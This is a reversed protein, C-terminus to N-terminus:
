VEIESLGQEVRGADVGFEAVRVGMARLLSMMVLSTNEQTQSRYHFGTRLAGCATGALLLPYEDIQHTRGYSVDTTGLLVSNDLLTGDGEPIARLAGVLYAFDRVIGVVIEHVQPQDGPEDHTLQHHGATSHPYLVDNLPNSYWFSLVRTLDCAFAMTVLDTMVHARASMQPRGDIDPIADPVVPRVCADLVPPDDELRAIRLELDRVAEFHQDIRQRDVEGLRARLAVSDELVSDLVSRRLRLTPDLIPEDGPARFGAGFLREFLRIPDAEPPNVSDPGNHSLGRGGPEVGVELSRFRTDGGIAAAMVQDISPAAFTEDDGSVVVTQGTLLGAPGSIHAVPNGTKVELGTLVSVVDRVPELPALQESLTYQAGSDAPVWRDPLIGNGWFYLGFRRPFAGNSAYVRGNIDFFAELPPLALAVASGGVLGRLVTRRSLPNSRFWGSRLQRNGGSM